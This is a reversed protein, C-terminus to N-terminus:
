GGCFNHLREEYLFFSGFPCEKACDKLSAKKMRKNVRMRSICQALKNLYNWVMSYEM